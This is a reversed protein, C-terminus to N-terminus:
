MYQHITCFHLIISLSFYRKWSPISWSGRSWLFMRYNHGDRLRVDLNDVHAAGHLEATIGPWPDLDLHPQLWHVTVVTAQLSLVMPLVREVDPPGLLLALQGGPTM